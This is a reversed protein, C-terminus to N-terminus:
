ASITRAELDSAVLLARCENLVRRRAEELTTRVSFGAALPHGGGGFVHALDSVKVRGKGRASVKIYGSDMEVFLLAIEVGELSLPINVIDPMEMPDITYRRLMESSVLGCAVRGDSCLEVNDIVEGELKVEALSRRWHLNVHVYYPRAGAEVLAGAMRFTEPRCREYSFNGSDVVLSTYLPTAVSPTLEAGMVKLLHFLVEGTANLEPDCLLHDFLPETDLHHDLCIKVAASQRLKAELRGLRYGLGVDLVVATDAQQIFRDDRAPDYILIEDPGALLFRLPHPVVTDNIIRVEAGRARLARALALECGIGDGDSKIHTTIWVRRTTQLARAAASVSEAALRAGNFNTEAM